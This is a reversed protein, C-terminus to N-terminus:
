LVSPKEPRFTFAGMLRRVIYSQKLWADGNFGWRPGWSNRILCAPENELDGLGVIVVAHGLAYDIVEHDDPLVVENGEYLWAAPSTFTSSIFLGLVVPQFAELSQQLEATSTQADISDCRYMPHTIRPPKWTAPDPAATLYPWAAEEPQGTHTLAGLTDPFTTGEDPGTGARQAAHYYLWEVCFEQDHRRTLQHATSVAFPLCTPRRKQNRAPGLAPRLDHTITLTM